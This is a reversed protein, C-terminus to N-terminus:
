LCHEHLMFTAPPQCRPIHICVNLLMEEFLIAASSLQKAESPSGGSPLFNGNRDLLVSTCVAEQMLLELLLFVLSFVWDLIVGVGFPIAEAKMHALNSPCGLVM